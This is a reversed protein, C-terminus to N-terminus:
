YVKMRMVTLGVWEVPEHLFSYLHNLGTIGMIRHLTLLPEGPLKAKSSPVLPFLAAQWVTQTSTSIMLMLVKQGTKGAKAQCSFVNLMKIMTVWRDQMGSIPPNWRQSHAQKDGRSKDPAAIPWM